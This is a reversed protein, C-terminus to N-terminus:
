QFYLVLEVYTVSTIGSLSVALNDKPALVVSTWNTFSTSSNEVASALAPKTGSGVISTTPLGAGDAARFIDVTVSGSPKAILLWGQLTGGYPIKVPNKTGTTLVSGQGDVFLKEQHPLGIWFVRSADIPKGATGVNSSTKKIVGTNSEVRIPESQAFGVVPILLLVTVFRKM